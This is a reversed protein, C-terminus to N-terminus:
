RRQWGYTDILMQLGPSAAVSILVCADLADAFTAAPRATAATMRQQTTIGIMSRAAVHHLHQAHQDAVLVVECRGTFPAHFELKLKALPSGGPADLVSWSTAVMLRHSAEVTGHEDLLAFAQRIQPAPLYTTDDDRVYVVFLPQIDETGPGEPTVVGVAAAFVTGALFDQRKAAAEGRTTPRVEARRIQALPPTWSGTRLDNHSALAALGMRTQGSELAPALDRNTAVDRPNVAHTVALMIGGRERIASRTRPETAASVTALTTDPFGVVIDGTDTFAALAGAIPVDLQLGRGPSALGAAIYRPDLIVQWPRRGSKRTVIVGELGPNILMMPVEDGSLPLLLTRAVWSCPEAAEVAASTTGTEPDRCTVHHLSAYLSRGDGLDDLCLAPRAAGLPMGCSQCDAPWLCASVLEYGGRGLVRMTHSGAIYGRSPTPLARETKDKRSM